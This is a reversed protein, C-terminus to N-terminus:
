DREKMREVTRNFANRDAWVVIGVKGTDLLVDNPTLAETEITIRSGDRLRKINTMCHSLLQFAMNDDGIEAIFETLTM